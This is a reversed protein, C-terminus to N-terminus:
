QGLGRPATTYGPLQRPQETQPPQRECGMIGPLDHGIERDRDRDSEAAISGAIDRHETRLGPTNPGTAESGFTDRSIV